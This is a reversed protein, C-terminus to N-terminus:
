KNLKVQEEFIKESLITWLRAIKKRTQTIEHYNKLKRFSQGMRLETLKKQLSQLEKYLDKKDKSRLEQLEVTTKM